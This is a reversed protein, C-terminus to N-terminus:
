EYRCAAEEIQKKIEVGFDQIRVSILKREARLLRPNGEAENAIESITKLAWEGLSAVALGYEPEVQTSMGELSACVGDKLRRLETEYDQLNHRWAHSKPFAAQQVQRESREVGGNGARNVSVVRVGNKPIRWNVTCTNNTQDVRQRVCHAGELSLTCNAGIELYRAIAELFEMQSNASIVSEEQALTLGAPRKLSICFVLDNKDESIVGRAAPVKPAAEVAKGPICDFWLIALLIGTPVYSRIPLLHLKMM